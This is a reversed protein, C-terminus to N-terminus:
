TGPEELFELPGTGETPTVAAGVKALERPDLTGRLRLFRGGSRKTRLEVGLTSLRLEASGYPGLDMRPADPDEAFPDVGQLTGGQDIVLFDAGRVFVDAFSTERSGTRTPDSFNEPQSPVINFRGLREFGAPISAPDYLLFEGPPLGEGMRRILGGGDKVELTRAGTVFLEDDLTPDEEVETAIRRSVIAGDLVLLEELVLGAADVCAEAYEAETPKTLLSAGLVQGSRFIQCRRGLVTRVERPELLGMAEADTQVPLLRVDSPASSPPVGIVVPESSASENRRIAFAAIQASVRETGPPAGRWTELRSEFPRRVWVKDTSVAVAPGTFEELRYVIRFSGPTREIQVREGGGGAVEDSGERTARAREPASPADDSGLFRVVGFGLAGVLAIGGLALAPAVTRKERKQRRRARRQEEIRARRREDRETTM